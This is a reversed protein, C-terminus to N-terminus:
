FRRSAAPVPCPTCGDLQTQSAQSYLPASSAVTLFASGDRSRPRAGVPPGVLAGAVFTGGPASVSSVEPVQSLQAAYRGLEAASVGAADPIVVTM